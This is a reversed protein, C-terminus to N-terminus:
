ISQNKKGVVNTTGIQHNQIQLVKQTSFTRNAFMEQYLHNQNDDLSANQITNPHYHM